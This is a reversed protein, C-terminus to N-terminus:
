GPRDSSRARSANLIARRVAAHHQASPPHAARLHTAVAAWAGATSTAPSRWGCECAALLLAPSRDIWQPQHM